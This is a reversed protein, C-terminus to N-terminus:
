TPVETEFDKRGSTFCDACPFGDALQACDECEGSGDGMVTPRAEIERVFPAPLRDNTALAAAWEHKCMPADHYEKDPCACGEGRADVTYAGGWTVVRALGPGLEDVAVVDELARRARDDFDSM